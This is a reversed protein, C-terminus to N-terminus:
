KPPALPWQILQIAHLVDSPEPDHIFLRVYYIVDTSGCSYYPYCPPRSLVESLVQYRGIQVHVAPPTVIGAHVMLGYEASGLMTVLLMVVVALGVAHKM